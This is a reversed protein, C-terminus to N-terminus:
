GHSRSSITRDIGSGSRATTSRYYGQRRDRVSPLIGGRWRTRVHQEHTLPVGFAAIIGDGTPMVFAGYRQATERLTAVVRGILDAATEPELDATQNTPAKIDAVM